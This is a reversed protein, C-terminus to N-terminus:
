IWGFLKKFFNVIANIIRQWLSLEQVPENSSNDKETTPEETTSEETASETTSEETSPEKIEDQSDVNKNGNGTPNSTVPKTVDDKIEPKTAPKTQSETSTTPKTSSEPKTAEGKNETEEKDETETKDGDQTDDNDTPPTVPKEEDEEVQVAIINFKVLSAFISYDGLGLVNVKAVGVNINDSYVASYDSDLTLEEGQVTVSVEPRIEFGTYTQDPIPAVVFTSYPINNKEAYEVAYTDPACVISINECNDFATDAIENVSPAIYATELSTCDAFAYEGVQEVTNGIVVTEIIENGQYQNDTIQAAEIDENTFYFKKLNVCGDFATKDTFKVNTLDVSTLSTCNAFASYSISIIHELNISKLNTCNSFLYPSIASINAKLTVNEVSSRAFVGTDLEKVTEPVTISNTNLHQLAYNCITEIGNPFRFNEIPSAFSMEGFLKITTNEGFDVTTLNNCSKFAYDGIKELYTNDAFKVYALNQCSGFASTNIETISVPIEISSIATQNFASDDIIKLNDPLTISTLKTNKIFACNGIAETEPLITYSEGEKQKPYLLLTKKDGSYLVGNDSYFHPNDASVKISKLNTFNCRYNGVFDLEQMNSGLTLEEIYDIEFAKSNFKTLSDPLTLSKINVNGVFAEDEIFQLNDGFTIDSFACYYFARKGIYEINPLNIVTPVYNGSFAGEGIYVLGEPVNMTAPRHFKSTIEKTIERLGTPLWVREINSFAAQNEDVTIATVTADEIKDPFILKTTTEDANWGTITAEGNAIIYYFIGDSTLKEERVLDDQNLLSCGYFADVGITRINDLNIEILNSCNYFAMDGIHNVNNGLIVKTLNTCDKFTENKIQSIETNSFDVTKITTSGSFAKASFVRLNKCESLDLNEIKTSSFTADLIELSSNKGFDVETLSPLNSFHEGEIRTLQSNDEFEIKKLNISGGFYSPTAYEDILKFETLSNPIFIYELYECGSLCNNYMTKLSSPTEVTFSTIRSNCFASNYVVEVSKPLVIDDKFRSEMFACPGIEKLQSNEAFQFSNSEFLRFADTGIKEVTNGITFNNATCQYFAKKCIYKVGEPITFDYEETIPVGYQFDPHSGVVGMWQPNKHYAILYKMDKSYLVNDVATLYPNEESVEIIKLLDNFAFPNEQEYYDDIYDMGQAGTIPIYHCNEVMRAQKGFKIGSFNSRYFSDACFFKFDDGFVLVTDNKFTTGHFAMRGICVLEEPITFDCGTLDLNRFTYNDIYKLTSPLSISMKKEEYSSSNVKGSVCEVGEPITISKLNQQAQYYKFAFIISLVKYGDIKSPYVISSDFGTYETIEIHEDDLMRYKYYGSTIIDSNSAALTFVPVSGVLILFALAISLISKFNKKM